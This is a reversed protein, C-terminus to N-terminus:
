PRDQLRSSLASLSGFPRCSTLRPHLSASGWPCVFISWAESPAASSDLRTGLPILHPPNFPHGTVCREPHKCESQIRSMPIGSTSSALIVPPPLISGM